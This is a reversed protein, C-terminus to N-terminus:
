PTLHGILVQQGTSAANGNDPQLTVTFTPHSDLSVGSWLTVVGDGTHFTGIPVLGDPGKVWAEYYMGAPARPLGHLTMQIELGNARTRVRATGSAQPARPTGALAVTHEFGASRHLVAVSGAGILVGLLCAAAAIWLHRRSGQRKARQRALDDTSTAAVIREELGAPPEVWTQSEALTVRLADLDDREGSCVSCSAVHETAEVEGALYAAQQDECTLDV